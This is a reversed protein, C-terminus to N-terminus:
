QFRASISEEKIQLFEIFVQDNGKKFLLSKEQTEEGDKRTEIYHNWPYFLTEVM